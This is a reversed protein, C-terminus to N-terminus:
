MTSGMSQKSTKTGEVWWALGAEAGVFQIMKEAVIQELDTKKYADDSLLPKYPKYDINQANCTALSRVSGAEALWIVDGNSDNELDENPDYEYSENDSLDVPKSIM